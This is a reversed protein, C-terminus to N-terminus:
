CTSPPKTNSGLLLFKCREDTDATGPQLYQGLNKSVGQLKRSRRFCRKYCARSDVLWWKLEAPM